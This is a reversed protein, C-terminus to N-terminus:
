ALRRDAPRLAWSGGAIATLVLAPVMGPVDGIAAHSAAAGTLAFVFGAYAWEKLRPSGRALLAVVGLLKWVGLIHLFYTPYGMQEHVAEVMPAAQVVDGLGSGTMALSFLGTTAWYGMARKDM